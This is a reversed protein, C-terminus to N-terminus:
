DGSEGGDIRATIQLGNAALGDIFRAARYVDAWTPGEHWVGDGDRYGGHSLLETVAHFVPNTHYRARVEEAVYDAIQDPENM